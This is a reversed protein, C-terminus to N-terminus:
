YVDEILLSQKNFLFVDGKNKKFLLVTLPANPSLLFITFDDIMVKGLGAAIFFGATATKVFCGSTIKESIHNCNISMIAALEKKNAALQTAHMDKALHNMARSTEYKDGASSKSESNAALQAEDMLQQSAAIREEIAKICYLKLQNKFVIKGENTM